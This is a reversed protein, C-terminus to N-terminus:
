SNRRSATEPRRLSRAPGRTPAPAPDTRQAPLVDCARASTAARVSIGDPHLRVRLDHWPRVNWSLENERGEVPVTATSSHRGHDATHTTM